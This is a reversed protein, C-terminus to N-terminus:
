IQLQLFHFQKQYREMKVLEERLLFSVQKPAQKRRIKKFLYLYYFYLAQFGKLKKKPYKKIDGKVKYVQKLQSPQMIYIGNQQAIIRQKIAEEATGELKFEMIYIYDNTKVVM